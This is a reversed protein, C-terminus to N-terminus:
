DDEDDEQKELLLMKAKKVSLTFDNNDYTIDVSQPEYFDTLYLMKEEGKDTKIRIQIDLVEKIVDM